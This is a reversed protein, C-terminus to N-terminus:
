LRDSVAKFNVCVFHVTDKGEHQVHTAFAIVASKAVQNQVRCFSVLERASIQNLVDLILDDLFLPLLLM